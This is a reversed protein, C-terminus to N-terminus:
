RLGARFARYHWCTLSLGARVRSAVSAGASIVLKRWSMRRDVTSLWLSAQHRFAAVENEATTCEQFMFLDPKLDSLGPM